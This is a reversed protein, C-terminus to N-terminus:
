IKVSVRNKEDSESEWHEGSDEESDDEPHRPREVADSEDNPKIDSSNCADDKRSAVDAKM